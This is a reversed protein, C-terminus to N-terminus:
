HDIILVFGGHLMRKRQLFLPSGYPSACPYIHGKQILEQIQRKIEDNELVLRRYVPENPLPTRPILDISHRVQCHSPVGTPLELVNQYKTLIQDM